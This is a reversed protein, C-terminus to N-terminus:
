QQNTLFLGVHTLLNAWGAKTREAYEQWEADMCHVLQALCGDATATLRITVLSSPDDSDLWQDGANWTFSLRTPSEIAQYTGWHFAPGSPRQDAFCFRGGVRADVDVQIIEGSLGKAQMAASLWRRIANPQLWSDFVQQASVKLSQVVEIQVQDSKSM